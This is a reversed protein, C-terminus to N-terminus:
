VSTVTLACKKTYQYLPIQITTCIHSGNQKIQELLVRASAASYYLGLRSDSWLRRIICESERLHLCMYLGVLKDHYGRNELHIRVLWPQCKVFFSFKEMVLHTKYNKFTRMSAIALWSQYTRANVPHGPVRAFNCSMFWFPSGSTRSMLTILVLTEVDQSSVPSSFSTNNEPFESSIGQLPDVQSSTYAGNLM